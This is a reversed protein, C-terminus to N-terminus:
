IGDVATFTGFRKTLQHAHILPTNDAHMPLGFHNHITNQITPSAPPYTHTTNTLRQPHTHRTDTEATRERRFRHLRLHCGPDLRSDRDVGILEEEPTMDFSRRKDIADPEPRIDVDPESIVNRQDGEVKIERVGERRITRPIQVCSGAGGDIPEIGVGVRFRFCSEVEENTRPMSVAHEELHLDADHVAGVQFEANSVGESLIRLAPRQM